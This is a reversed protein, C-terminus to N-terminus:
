EENIVESSDSKMRLFGIIIVIGVLALAFGVWVDWPQYRFSYTHNGELGATQLWKSDELVARKGDMHVTWGDWSNEKVILTGSDPSNCSVDINGGVSTAKCPVQIDGTQIFAYEAGPDRVIDVEGIRQFVNPQPINQPNHITALYTLPLDRGKWDWPRFTILKQGRELLPPIWNSGLPGVWEASDVKLWDLESNQPKQELTYYFQKSFQYASAVSLVAIFLLAANFISIRHTSNEGRSFNVNIWEVKTLRDLALGALGILPPIVLSTSIPLYRLMSFVPSIALMLQAFEHSCVLLVLGISLWFFGQLKREEKKQLFLGSVALLIPIWGIYNANVYLFPAKALADSNLFVLDRIVLNFPIYGLSQYISLEQDTYKAFNPYFHALPVFLLGALLISIGIAQLVRLYFPRGAIKERFFLVLAAPIWTLFLVIQTYSHGALWAFSMTVALWIVAKRNRNWFLDVLPPLVLSVAAISIVISMGGNAFKGALHGGAVALAACWLRSFRGLRIVLGLWWSAMGAMILIGIMTLKSGNIGGFLLTPLAVLPHLPAGHLEVFAPNGGNISGNWFVCTGCRLLNNWFYHSQSSMEVEGGGVYYTTQFNLYDRGVFCAWVIILLFELILGWRWTKVKKWVGNM